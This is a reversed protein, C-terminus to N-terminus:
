LRKGMVWADSGDKYFRNRVGRRAFGTQEYLCVAPVNKVSVELTVDGGPLLALAHTLLARGIGQRRLDAEVALNTIEYQDEVGRLALFGVIKGNIEACWVGCAPNALEDQWGTVTWHASFVSAQDLGALLAAEAAAASRINM